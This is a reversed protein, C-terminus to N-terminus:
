KGAGNAATNAPVEYHPADPATENQHIFYVSAAGALVIAVGGAIWYGSKGQNAKEQSEPRASRPEEREPSKLPSATRGARADPNRRRELFEERVREFIRDIEESVYMDLLKASPVLELLRLMYHRGKERTVPNASYVVALHKAIFVSDELAYSRNRQMYKELEAIVSEFDGENYLEHITKHDITEPM